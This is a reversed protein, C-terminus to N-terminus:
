NNNKTHMKKTQKKQNHIREHIQMNSYIHTLSGKKRLLLLNLWENSGRNFGPIDQVVHDGVPM